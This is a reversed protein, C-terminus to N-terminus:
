LTATDALAVRQDREVLRQRSIKGPRRFFLCLVPPGTIRAALLGLATPGETKNEGAPPGRLIPRAAAVVDFLLTGHDHFQGRRIRAIGRERRRLPSSVMCHDGGPPLFTGAAPLM